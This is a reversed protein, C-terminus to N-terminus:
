LMYIALLCVLINGLVQVVPQGLMQHHRIFLTSPYGVVKPHNEHTLIDEASADRVTVLYTCCFHVRLRQQQWLRRERIGGIERSTETVLYALGLILRCARASPCLDPELSLVQLGHETELDAPRVVHHSM